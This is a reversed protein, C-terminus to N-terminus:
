ADRRLPMLGQTLRETRCLVPKRDDIDLTIEDAGAVDVLEILFALKLCVDADIAGTCPVHDVIEGVDARQCTLRAQGDLDHFTVRGADADALVRVRDLAERLTSAAFTLSEPSTDRLFPELNPFDGEFLRCTWSSAGAAFTACRDDITLTAGDGANKATAIIAGAPIIAEPLEVGLDAIGFRYSDTAHAKGGSVHVGCYRSTRDASVFRAVRALLGLTAPDLEVADGEAETVKPWSEAALTRVTATAEGGSLSVRDGELALEVVDGDFAGIISAALHAPVVVVGPEAIDAPVSSTVTLDLNSCTVSILDDAAEILAGALVPLNKGVAPLATKLAALLASREARAKM